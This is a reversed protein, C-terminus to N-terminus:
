HHELVRDRTMFFGLVFFVLCVIYPIFIGEMTMRELLNMSAGTNYDLYASSNWYVFTVTIGVLVSLLIFIVGIVKSIGM